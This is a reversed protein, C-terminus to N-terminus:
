IQVSKIFFIQLALWYICVLGLNLASILHMNRVFEDKFNIDFVFDPLSMQEFLKGLNSFEDLVGINNNNDESDFVPRQTCFGGDDDSEESEPDEHQQDGEKLPMDVKRRKNQHLDSNLDSNSFAKARSNLKQHEKSNSFPRKAGDTTSLILSQSTRANFIPKLSDPSYFSDDEYSELDTDLKSSHATTPPIERNSAWSSNSSPLWLMPPNRIRSLICEVDEDNPEGRLGEWGQWEAMSGNGKGKVTESLLNSEFDQVFHSKFSFM